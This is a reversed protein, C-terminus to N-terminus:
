LYNNAGFYVLTLEQQPIAQNASNVFGANSEQFPLGVSAHLM